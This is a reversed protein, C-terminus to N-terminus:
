HYLRLEKAEDRTFYKANSMDAICASMMHGPVDHGYRCVEFDAYVTYGDLMKDYLQPHQSQLEMWDLGLLRKTGVPWLIIHSNVYLSLRGHIKQCAEVVAEDSRCDFEAAFSTTSQLLSLACLTAFLIRKSM